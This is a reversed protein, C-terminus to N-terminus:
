NETENLCNTAPSIGKGTARKARHVTGSQIVSRFSLLFSLDFDISVSQVAHIVLFISWTM